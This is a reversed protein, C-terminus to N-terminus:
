WKVVDRSSGRLIEESIRQTALLLKETAVWVFRRYSIERVLKDV